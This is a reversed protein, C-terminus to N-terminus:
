IFYRICIIRQVYGSWVPSNQIQINYWYLNHIFSISSSRPIHASHGLYGLPSAPSKLSIFHFWTRKVSSHRMHRWGSFRRSRTQLCGPWASRRRFLTWKKKWQLAWSWGQTVEPMTGMDGPGRWDGKNM